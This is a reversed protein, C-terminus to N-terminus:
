RARRAAAAAQSLLTYKALTASALDRPMRGGEVLSLFEALMLPFHREHGVDLASPV